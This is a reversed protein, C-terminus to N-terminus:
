IIPFDHSFYVGFGEVGEPRLDTLLSKATLEKKQLHSEKSQVFDYLGLM